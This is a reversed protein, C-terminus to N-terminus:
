SLSGFVEKLLETVRAAPDERIKKEEKALMFFLGDLGKDTIYDNLEFKTKKVGPIGNYTDVLFAFLKSLGVKDMADKVVPYFVNYLKNRTQREFYHTAADDPGQLIDRADRVTMKMIADVFIDAAGEAAKEAAHNMDEVFKNVEKKLGVKRLVNSFDELEEPLPIYIDRNKLFGNKRSVIEVANKTGVELAEKLGAIITKEDLPKDRDPILDALDGPVSICNMSSLIFFIIFSVGLIFYVKSHNMYNRRKFVPDGEGTGPIHIM